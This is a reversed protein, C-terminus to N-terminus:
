ADGSGIWVADPAPPTNTDGPIHQASASYSPRIGRLLHGRTAAFTQSSMGLEQVRDILTTDANPM